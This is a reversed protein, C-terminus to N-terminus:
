FFSTDYRYNCTFLRHQNRNYLELSCNVLVHVDSVSLCAHIMYFFETTRSQGAHFTFLPWENIVNAGFSPLSDLSM